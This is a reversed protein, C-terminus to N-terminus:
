EIPDGSEYRHCGRSPRSSPGRCVGVTHVCLLFSYNFITVILHCDVLINDASESESRISDNSSMSTLITCYPVNYFSMAIKIGNNNEECIFPAISINLVVIIIIAIQCVVITRLNSTSSCEFVENNGALKRAIWIFPKEFNYNNKASIEFYQLNKKRHFTIQKAKVKRDKVEVKNGCLVIPINECVRTLDRLLCTPLSISLFRLLLLNRLDASLISVLM